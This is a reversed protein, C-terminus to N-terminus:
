QYIVYVKNLQLQYHGNKINLIYRKITKLGVNQGLKGLCVKEEYIDYLCV